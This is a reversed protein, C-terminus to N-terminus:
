VVSKRDLTIVRVPVCIDWQRLICPFATIIMCDKGCGALREKQVEASGGQQAVLGHVVSVAQQIVSSGQALILGEDISARHCQFRLSVQRVPYGQQYAQTFTKYPTASGAAAMELISGSDFVNELRLFFM